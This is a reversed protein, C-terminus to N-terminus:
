SARSPLKRALVRVEGYALPHSAHEGIRERVIDLGQATLMARLLEPTFAHPHMDDVTTRLDVLIWAHGGPKLVRAIEAVVRGPDAVHDLCNDCVVLDFTSGTVPLQEGPATIPTFSLTDSTPGQPFLGCAAYGDNLPDVAAAFRWRGQAVMPHPGGGIELVATESQWTRVDPQGLWQALEKCRDVQWRAFVAHFDGYAPDIAEHAGPVHVARVWYALEDRLRRELHVDGIASTLSGDLGGRWAHWGGAGAIADELPVLAPRIARRVALKWLNVANALLPGRKKPKSITVPKPARVPGPPSPRDASPTPAKPSSAPTAQAAQNPERPVSSSSAPM